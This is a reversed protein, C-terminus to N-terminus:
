RFKIRNEIKHKANVTKKHGLSLKTYCKIQKYWDCM